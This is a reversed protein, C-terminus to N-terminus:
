FKWIVGNQIGSVPYKRSSYRLFQESHFTGVAAHHSSNNATVRWLADFPSGEKVEEKLLGNKRAKSCAVSSWRLCRFVIPNVRKKFYYKWKLYLENHPPWLFKFFFGLQNTKYKTFALNIAKDYIELKRPIYSSSRQNLKMLYKWLNRVTLINKHFYFAFESFIRHTAM